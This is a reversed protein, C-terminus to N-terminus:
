IDEIIPDTKEIESDDPLGIHELDEPGTEIEIVDEKTVTTKVGEQNKIREMFESYDQYAKEPKYNPDIQRILGSKMQIDGVILYYEYKARTGIKKSFQPKNPERHPVTKGIKKNNLPKPKAPIIEEKQANITIKHVNANDIVMDTSQVRVEFYRYQRQTDLKFSTIMDKIFKRFYKNGHPKAAKKALEERMKNVARDRRM